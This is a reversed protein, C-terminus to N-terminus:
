FCLGSNYKRGGTIKVHNETNFVYVQILPNFGPILDEIIKTSTELILFM